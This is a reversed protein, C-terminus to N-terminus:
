YFFHTCLIKKLTQLPTLGMNHGLRLQRVLHEAVTVSQTRHALQVFRLGATMNEHGRPKGMAHWVEAQNAYM